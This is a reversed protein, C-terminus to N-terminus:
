GEMIKNWTPYQPVVFVTSPVTTCFKIDMAVKRGSNKCGQNMDYRNAQKTKIKQSTSTVNHQINCCITTYMITHSWCKYLPLEMRSSIVQWDNRRVYMCSSREEPCNRLSYYKGEKVESRFNWIVYIRLNKLGNVICDKVTNAFARVRVHLLMCHQFALLLSTPLFLRVCAYAMSHRQSPMWQQTSNRFCCTCVSKLIQHKKSRADYYLIIEYVLKLACNGKNM